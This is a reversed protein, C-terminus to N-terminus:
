FTITELSPLYILMGKVNIYGMKEFENMYSKIQNIDSAEKSSTKYDIIWWYDNHFIMRDIRKVEGSKTIIERENYHSSGHNFLFSLDKSNELLNLYSKCKDFDENNIKFNNKLYELHNYAKFFDNHVMSMLQHFLTGFNIQNEFVFKNELNKVPSKTSQFDVVVTSEDKRKHSPITLEGLNFLGTQANYNKHNKVYKVISATVSGKTIKGSMNVFLHDASRTFAVYYLNLNDLAVLQEEKEFVSKKGLSILTKRNMQGIFFDFKQEFVTLDDIWVYPQQSNNKKAWTAKPLIVVPFELGKSKHITLIQVANIEGSGVNIKKAEEWITDLFRFITNHDKVVYQYFQDSFSYIHPDKDAIGLFSLIFDLKQFDQFLTYEELQNTNPVLSFEQSSKNKYINYYYNFLLLDNKDRNEFYRFCFFMLKFQVSYFLYISDDSIFPIQLEHLIKAIEVGDKGTRVLITIDAYQYGISIVSDIQKKIYEQQSIESLNINVSGEFDRKIHQASETYADKITNFNNEKSVEHFLWNNFEVISKSSRWNSKLYGLEYVDQFLPEYEHGGDLNPLNPLDMFQKVHGERWRYIAQKADGVILNKGGNSISEHILPILNNWQLLSTDQFEDVLIYNFRSGIREFIFGAPENKVIDGILANFDSILIVNNQSKVDKLKKYLTNVMMFPVFLKILESYKVYGTLQSVLLTLMENLEDKIANIANLDNSSLSKKFLKEENMWNTLKSIFDVDVDHLQEEVSLIKSINGYPSWEELISNTLLLQKITKVNSIIESQLVDLHNVLKLRLLILQEYDYVKIKHQNQILIKELQQLQKEIDTKIGKKISEDIIQFILETFKEDSTSEDIFTSVVDNLFEKEELVIDYSPMLNLESSFASIVTNTFRDITMVNFDSYNHIIKTYIIKSKLHLDEVSTENEAAILRLMESPQESCANNKLESLIREKMEQAAKNTFTIALIEKFAYYSKSDFLISLYQKVIAFTKGSGASSRYVVLQKM